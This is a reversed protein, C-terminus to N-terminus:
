TPSSWGECTNSISSRTNSPSSAAGPTATSSSTTSGWASGSRKSRRRTDRSPGSRPITPSIPTTAASSITTTCRSAPRPCSPSWRRSTNTASAPAATCCPPSQDPGSGIRKTWVKYKGDVVPLMRIGAVRIGPPNLNDPSQPSLDADLTNVTSAHAKNRAASLALSAAGTALFSRRNM